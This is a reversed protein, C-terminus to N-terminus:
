TLPKYFLPHAYILNFTPPTKEGLDHVLDQGQKEWHWRLAKPEETINYSISCACIDM